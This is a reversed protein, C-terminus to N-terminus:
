NSSDRFILTNLYNFTDDLKNIKFGIVDPHSIIERDNGDVDYKDGFFYINDYETKTITKLVQVKSWKKPYIAIGVNGGYVIDIIDAIELKIAEEKLLVLLKSRHSYINDSIIYNNREEETASMGVLSIYILGNRLDIFHGSILYEMESIYKLAVKILKNIKDYEPIERLNNKYIEKYQYNTLKNYVSGCESFIHQAVIKNDLQSLIKNFSGGGVIGITYTYSLYNIIAAIKDNIKKGSECITGDVDFLLINKKNSM